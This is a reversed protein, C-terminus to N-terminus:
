AAADLKAEEVDSITEEVPEGYGSEQLALKILAQQLPMRFGLDTRYRERCAKLTPYGEDLMRWKDKGKGEVLLGRTRMMQEVLHWDDCEGIRLDKHPQTVLDFEASLSTIPVKFKKVLLKTERAIPLVKSIKEDIKAKGWLRLRLSYMFKPYNGGPTTEPDGYVVGVKTRTQNIWIMACRVGQDRRDKLKRTIKQGMRKILIPADMARKEMEEDLEKASGMAALSDLVCVGLDEASLLKDMIDGTQEIYDPTVVHLKDVDVGMKRAWVPDFTGEVNFYVNQEAPYLVQNVAITSLALNTKGSGEPGYIETVRARPIGGGIALDVPFLGTSIREVDTFQGGMSAIQEGHDAKVGAMLEDVNAVTPGALWISM